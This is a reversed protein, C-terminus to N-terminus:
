SANAVGIFAGGMGLARAGSGVPNPSSTIELIELSQAFPFAPFCAIIIFISCAIFIKFKRSYKDASVSKMLLSKEIKSM